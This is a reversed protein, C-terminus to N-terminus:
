YWYNIHNHNTPTLTSAPLRKLTKLEYKPNNIM